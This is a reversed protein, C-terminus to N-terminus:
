YQFEKHASALSTGIYEIGPMAKYKAILQERKKVDFGYVIALPKARESTDFKGEILIRRARIDKRIKETLMELELEEVPQGQEARTHLIDYYHKTEETLDDLLENKLNPDSDTNILITEIVKDIPNTM